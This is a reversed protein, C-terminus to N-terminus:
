SAIMLGNSDLIFPMNCSEAIQNLSAIETESPQASSAIANWLNFIEPLTQPNQEFGFLMSVLAPNLAQAVPTSTAIRIYAANGLVSARFQQWNPRPPEYLEVPDDQWVWGEGQNQEAIAIIRNLTDLQVYPM